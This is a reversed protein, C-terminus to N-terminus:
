SISFNYLEMKGVAVTQGMLTKAKVRFHIRCFEGKDAMDGGPHTTKQKKPAIQKEEERLM